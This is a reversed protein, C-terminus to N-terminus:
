IICFSIKTISLLIRVVSMIAYCLFNDCKQTTGTTKRFSVAGFPCIWFCRGCSICLSDDHLVTGEPSKHMAGTPCVNVCKLNNCHNCSFSYPYQIQGNQTNRSCLTVRRIFEGEMLSNCEKCAVQCAGCGICTDKNYRIRIKRMCYGRDLLM